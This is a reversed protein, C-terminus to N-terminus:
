AADATKELAARMKGGEDFFEVHRHTRVTSPTVAEFLLSPVLM